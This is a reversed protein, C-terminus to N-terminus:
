CGIVYRLVWNKSPSTSNGENGRISGDSIYLYKEAIEAGNGVAYLVFNHGKGPDLRVIEKSVFFDIYEYDLAAGNKYPSFVLSIGSKQDSIKESLTITQSDQM